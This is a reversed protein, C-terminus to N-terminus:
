SRAFRILERHFKDREDIYIGHGATEFTVLQAGKVAAAVAVGHDYPNVQDHRAHFVRTPMTIRPLDSTLDTDRLAYLGARSAVLSAGDLGQREFFQLFPDTAVDTHTSFFVKTLGRVVVSRDTAYGEILGALGAALDASQSGYVFRPAAPDAAVLKTVRTRFRAAYRLAIAGGMSHGVLMVHHLDMTRLVTRIDSCWIDYGYPGYPADSEGFGRLDLAVARYGQDALFLTTNELMISSLPWGPVLVITGKTGGDLDAVHVHVNPAVQVRTTFRHRSRSSSEEAASATTPVVAAAAVGLAAGTGGVLLSRRSTTTRARGRGVGRAPDADEVTRTEDDTQDDM